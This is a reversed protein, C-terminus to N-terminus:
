QHVETPREGAAAPASYSPVAEPMRRCVVTELGTRENWANARLTSTESASLARHLVLGLIALALGLASAQGALLAIDPRLLLLVTIVVVSGLVVLKRALPGFYVLGLGAFVVAASCMGVIWPRRLCWINVSDVARLTGFLYRNAQGPVHLWGEAVGAWHELDDEPMIPLRGWFFGTWGWRFEATVEAGNWIIHEDPLLVIEWYVRQAIAQSDLRLCELNTRGWSHRFRPLEYWLELLHGRVAGSNEGETSSAAVPIMVKTRSIPRPQVPRGDLWIQVLDSRAGRPLELDVHSQKTFFRLACRDQRMLRDLRTQILMREVVVLNAESAAGVRPSLIVERTHATTECEMQSLSLEGVSKAQRLRWPEAVGEIEWSAPVVVSLRHKQLQGDLPDVLPIQWPTTGPAKTGSTVTYRFVLESAGLVPGIPSVAFVDSGATAEDGPSQPVARDEGGRLSADTPMRTLQIPRGDLLVSIQDIGQPVRFRWPGTWSEYRVQYRIKQEVGVQAGDWTALTVIETSVEQQRVKWDAVFKADPRDLRFSVVNVASGGGESSPMSAPEVGLSREYDARLELNAPAVVLIEAPQVVHGKPQPFSIVLPPRELTENRSALFTVDFKGSMGQPLALTVRGQPNGTTALAMSQDGLFAKELQWGGMEVELTTIDSGRIEYSLRAQLEAKDFTLGVRYRPEIRVYAAKPVTKLQVTCPQTFYELYVAAESVEGNGATPLQSVQRVGKWQGWVLGRDSSPIVTLYGHERVAGEVSFGGLDLWADDDAKLQATIRVEVPGTTKKALIVEAVTHATQSTKSADSAEEQPSASIEQVSYSSSSFPVVRANPPLAVRFREFPVGFSRVTLRVDFDVIGETVRAVIAGNSELVTEADFASQPSESWSLVFGPGLGTVRLRQGGETPEMGLITAGPTVSPELDGAPFDLELDSLPSDPVSLVLRAENGARSVAIWGRFSIEEVTDASGQLYLLYGGDERNFSFLLPQGSSRQPLERLILQELRLPIRCPQDTRLRIRVRIALEAYEDAVKGQVHIEEILYPPAQNRQELGDRLRVLEEFQSMTWGLMLKLSGDVDRIYIQEPKVEQVALPPSTGPTPLSPSPAPVSPAPMGSPPTEGSAAGSAPSSGASSGM